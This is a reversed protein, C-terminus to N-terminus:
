LSTHCRGCYKAGDVDYPTDDDEGHLYGDRVHPKKECNIGHVVLVDRMKFDKRKLIKQARRVYDYFDRSEVHYCLDHILEFVDQPLGRRQIMDDNFNMANSRFGYAGTATGNVHIEKAPRPYWNVETYDCPSDDIAKTIASNLDGVEGDLISKLDLLVQRQTIKRRM